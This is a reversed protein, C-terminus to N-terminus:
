PTSDHRYNLSIIKLAGDEKVLMWQIRGKWVKREGDLRLIQDVEYRAKVEVANQYFEVRADEMSYRLDLSQHFFNEYIRRIGDLEDKQNQIAKPSFLSLFGQLDKKNYREVYHNFFKRVEEETAVALPLKGVMSPDEKKVPPSSDSVSRVAPIKKPPESISAPKQKEVPRPRGVGVSVSPAPSKTSSESRATPLSPEVTKIAVSPSTKKTQDRQQPSVREEIDKEITASKEVKSPEEISIVQRTPEEYLVGAKPSSLQPQQNLSVPAKPNRLLFGTFILIITLVSVPVILKRASFTKQSRQNQKEFDYGMRSASHKLVQYAENIEKAMEEDYKGDLKHDPHYKQMLEIWRHHIEEATATENVGLIKYYDKMKRKQTFPNGAFKRNSARAEGALPPRPV